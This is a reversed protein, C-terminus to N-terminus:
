EESNAKELDAENINVVKEDSAAKKKAIKDKVWRIFDRTDVGAKVAIEQATEVVETNMVENENMTNEGKFYLKSSREEM